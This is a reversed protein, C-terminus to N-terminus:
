YDKSALELSAQLGMTSERVILRCPVEIREPPGTRTGTIRGLLFAVALDGIKEKDPAITTLSPISYRGDEIDDFGVVAIDNPVHWGADHIARMVGLALHDNFCFVADPPTDLALLQRMSRM